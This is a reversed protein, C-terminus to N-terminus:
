TRRCKQQRIDQLYRSDYSSFRDSILVGAFNQGLGERVEVNTHRLNARFLVTDVSRFAGVWANQAGVRWGTDDHHVYPAQQIQTQLADVHAALASGDAALRQAAQTIAGQTIQLGGLLDMVRSIRRVPLGLEHHLTQLTTHLVPGLRHLLLTRM